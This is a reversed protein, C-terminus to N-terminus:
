VEFNVFVYLFLFSISTSQYKSTNLQQSHPESPFLANWRLRMALKKRKPVARGWDGPPPLSSFLVREILIGIKMNNPLMM